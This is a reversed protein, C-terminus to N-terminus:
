QQQYHRRHQQWQNQVDVANNHTEIGADAREELDSPTPSWVSASPADLLIKELESPPAKNMRAIRRKEDMQDSALYYADAEGGQVVRCTVGPLLTGFGVSCAVLSSLVNDDVSGRVAAARESSRNLPGIFTSPKDVARVPRHTAFLAAFQEPVVNVGYLLAMHLMARFTRVHAPSVDEPVDQADCLRHAEMLEAFTYRRSAAIRGDKGLRLGSEATDTYAFEFVDALEFVDLLRKINESPCLTGVWDPSM